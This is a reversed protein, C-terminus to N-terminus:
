QKHLGRCVVDSEWRTSGKRGTPTTRIISHWIIGESAQTRKSPGALRKWLMLTMTEVPLSRKRNVIAEPEKAVKM